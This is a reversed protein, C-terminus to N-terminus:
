PSSILMVDDFSSPGSELRNAIMAASLLAYRKRFQYTKSNQQEGVVLGKGLIRLTRVLLCCFFERMEDPLSNNSALKRVKKIVCWAKAFNDAPEFKADMDTLTEPKLLMKEFEFLTLFKSRPLLDFKVMAELCSFDHLLPSDETKHFETPMLNIDPDVFINRSNLCSNTTAWETFMNEANLNKVYSLPNPVIFRLRKPIFIEIQDNRKTFKIGYAERDDLLSDIEQTLTNMNLLEDKVATLYSEITESLDGPETENNYWNVCTKTIFREVAACVQETNKEDARYFAGFDRPLDDFRGSFSFTFGALRMTKESGFLDLRPKLKIGLTSFRDKEDWICEWSGFRVLFYENIGDAQDHRIFIGGTKGESDLIGTLTVRSLKYFLKRILDTLSVEIARSSLGDELKVLSAIEDWEVENKINLAFDLKLQRVSDSIRRGLNLFKNEDKKVVKLHEIHPIVKQEEPVLVVVQITGDHLALLENAWILGFDDDDDEKDVKRDTIVVHPEYEKIKANAEDFSATDISYGQPKLGDVLSDRVAESDEVVLVRVPTAVLGVNRRVKDIEGSLRDGPWSKSICGKAGENVTRTFLVRDVNGKYFVIVKFKSFREPPESSWIREDLFLLDVEDSRQDLDPPLTPQQVM